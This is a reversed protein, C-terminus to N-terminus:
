SNIFKKFSMSAVEYYNYPMLPPVIVYDLNQKHKRTKNRGGTQLDTYSRFPITPTKIMQENENFDIYWKPVDYINTHDFIEFMADIIWPYVISCKKESYKEQIAQFFDWWTKTSNYLPQLIEDLDSHKFSFKDPKVASNYLNLKLQEYLKHNYQLKAGFYFEYWTSGHFAIHFPKMTMAYTKGNPLSCPFSSCDDLEYRKCSPNIDRAITFALNIIHQSLKDNDKADLYCEPKIKSVWVLKGNSHNHPGPITLSVCKSKRSGINLSYYEIENTNRDTYPQITIHVAIKDTQIIASSPFLRTESM